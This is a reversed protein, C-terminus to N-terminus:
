MFNDQKIVALRQQWYEEVADDEQLQSSYAEPAKLIYAMRMSADDMNLIGYYWERRVRSSVRISGDGSDIQDIFSLVPDECVTYTIRDVDLLLSQVVAEALDLVGIKCNSTNLGEVKKNNKVDGLLLLDYKSGERSVDVVPPARVIVYDIGSKKIANELDQHRSRFLKFVDYKVNNNSVLASLLSSKNDDDVSDDENIFRSISVIKRIGGVQAVNAMTTYKVINYAVLMEDASFKPILGPIWNILGLDASPEFSHCLVIAQVNQIARSYDRDTSSSTLYVYDVNKGIPGFAKIAQKRNECVVRVNFGKEALDFAIWQGPATPGDIDGYLLIANEKLPIDSEKQEQSVTIDLGRLAAYEDESLKSTKEGYWKEGAGYKKGIFDDLVRDFKTSKVPQKNKNGSSSGYSNSDDNANTNTDPASDPSDQKDNNAHLRTLSNYYHVTAPSNPKVILFATSSQLLLCVLQM